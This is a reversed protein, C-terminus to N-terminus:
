SLFCLKLFGRAFGHSFVLQSLSSTTAQLLLFVAAVVSIPLIARGSTGCGGEEGEEGDEEEGEEEGEGPLFQLKDLIHIANALLIDDGPKERKMRHIGGGGGGEGGEGGGQHDDERRKRRGYSAKGEKGCLVPECHPICPTVLARFLMWLGVQCKRGNEGPKPFFDFYSTKKHSETGSSSWKVQQSNLLM